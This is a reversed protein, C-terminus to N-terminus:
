PVMVSGGHNPGFIAPRTASNQDLVKEDVTSSGSFNFDINGTGAGVKSFHLTILVENSGATVPGDQAVRSMAVKVIGSGSTLVVIPPTSTNKQLLPGVTYTTYQILSAPYTLDFGVTLIGSLDNVVVSVQLTSCTAGTQSMFVDGSAPTTDFATFTIDTCPAASAEDGGGKCGWSPLSILLGLLVGARGAARRAGQTMM